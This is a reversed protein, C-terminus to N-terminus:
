DTGQAGTSAAQSPALGTTNVIEHLEEVTLMDILYLFCYRAEHLVGQEPYDKDFDYIYSMSLTPLLDSIIGYSWGDAGRFDFDLAACLGHNGNPRSRSRNLVLDGSDLLEAVRHKFIAICKISFNM